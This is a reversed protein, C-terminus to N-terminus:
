SPGSSPSKSGGNQQKDLRRDRGTGRVRHVQYEGLDPSNVPASSVIAVVNEFIQFPIVENRDPVHSVILFTTCTPTMASPSIQWVRDWDGTFIGAFVDFLGVLVDLVVGLINSIQQFVGEFVPALLECFGNWVASLVETIDEFEFGLENLRDTIAQGFEPM